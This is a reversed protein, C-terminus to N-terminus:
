CFVVYGSTQVRRECQECRPRRRARKRPRNRHLRDARTCGCVLNQWDHGCQNHLPPRRSRRLPDPRRQHERGASGSKILKADDPSPSIADIAGHGVVIRVADAPGLGQCAADVLDTDPHKNPWPAPILEVGPAGPVPASGDLVRVNDPQNGTFASSSYISSADLPDHNGPLLFFTVKPTAAMKEFAGCSCKGSWKTRSSVRRRVRNRVSLRQRSRAKGDARCRRPSRSWLTGPAEDSLYHRTMGLHWDGTHLFKVM